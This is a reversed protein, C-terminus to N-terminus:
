GCPILNIQTYGDISERPIFDEPAQTIVTRFLEKDNKLFVMTFKIASDSQIHIKCGKSSEKVIISMSTLVGHNEIFM